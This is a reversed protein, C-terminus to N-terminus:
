EARLLVNQTKIIKIVFSSIKPVDLLSDLPRLYQRGVNRDQKLSKLGFKSGALARDQEAAAEKQLFEMILDVRTQTSDNADIKVDHLPSRQWAKMLEESLCAEIMPFIFASMQRAEIKLSELARLHTVLEDYFSTVKLQQKSSCDIMLRILDRVYVQQLLEPRGFRETLTEIVKPYNVDGAQLKPNYIRRNRQVLLSLYEKRFRSKLEERLKILYRLKQTTPNSGMNQCEPFEVDTQEQLFMSPSITVLDNPDDSVYTMPRGNMVAELEVTVVGRRARLGKKALRQVTIGLFYEGVVSISSGCVEELVLDVWSRGGHWLLVGEMMMSLVRGYGTRKKKERWVNAVRVRDEFRHKDM